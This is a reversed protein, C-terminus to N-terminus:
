QGDKFDLTQLNQSVHTSELKDCTCENRFNFTVKVNVTFTLIIEEAGNMNYKAYKPSIIGVIRM